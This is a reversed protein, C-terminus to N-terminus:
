QLVFEVRRNRQRGTPDTNPAVPEGSGVGRAEIRGSDIGKSVLYNKVAHARRVSLGLNYSHSGISDTHGAIVLNKQPNHQMSRVISDLIIHAQRELTSSDFGFLIDYDISFTTDGTIRNDLKYEIREAIERYYDLNNELRSLKQELIENNKELSVYKTQLETYSEQQSVIVAEMRGTRPQWAIHRSGMKGINFRVGFLLSGWTDRNFRGPKADIIDTNAVFYEYSAFFDVFSTVYYNFGLAATFVSVTFDTDPGERDTIQNMMRGFGLSIYPNVHEILRYTQLVDNLHVVGKGTFMFYQNHFRDPDTEKQFSGGFVGLEVSFPQTITYSVSTGYLPNYGANVDFVGGLTMWRGGRNAITAGGFFSVTFRKSSSDFYDMANSSEPLSMQVLGIIFLLVVSRNAIHRM